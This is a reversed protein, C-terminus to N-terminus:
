GLGRLGGVEGGEEAVNRTLLWWLLPSVGVRGVGLLIVMGLLKLVLVLLGCVIGSGRCRGILRKRSVRRQGRYKCVGAVAGHLLSPSRMRLAPPLLIHLIDHLLQRIQPPLIHSPIASVKPKALLKRRLASSLFSAFRPLIASSHSTSYCLGSLQM